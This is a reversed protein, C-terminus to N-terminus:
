DAATLYNLQLAKLFQPYRKIEELAGRSGGKILNDDSAKSLEPEM